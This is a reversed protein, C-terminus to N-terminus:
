QAVKKEITSPNYLNYFLESLEEDNLPVVRLGIQNLGDVVEGVRQDLQELYEKETQKKEDGENKKKGFLGFVASKLGAGTDSVRIPDLPVVVFFNKSMIANQSVFSKIFERYEFIQNKLLENTEQNEREEVKRLYNDINIKRSHIFIQLTFDVSNLFGQFASTIMEQEEASKLDFNIGSVILIRRYAGGRLKIVGNNISDINVFQQTAFSPEKSEQINPM